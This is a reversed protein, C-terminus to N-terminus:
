ILSNFHDICIAVVDEVTEFGDPNPVQFTSSNDKLVVPIGLDGDKLGAESVYATVRYTITKYGGTAPLGGDPYVGLSSTFSGYSNNTYQVDELCLVFNKLNIGHKTTYDKTTRFM